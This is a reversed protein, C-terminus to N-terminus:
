KKVRLRWIACKVQRNAGQDLASFWVAYLGPKPAKYRFPCRAGSAVWGCDVRAVVKGQASKVLAIVHVNLSQKDRAVFTTVATRGRKVVTLSGATVTPGALDVVAACAAQVVASGSDATFVISYPGGGALKGAADTGKWEFTHVGTPLSGLSATLVSKGSRLIAVSVTATRRLEFTV